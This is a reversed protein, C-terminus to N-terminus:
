EFHRPSNYFLHRKKAPTIPISRDRGFKSGALSIFVAGCFIIASLLISQSFAPPNFVFRVVHTGPPVFVGKFCYNVRYVPIEDGDLYAKWGPFYTDIMELLAGKETEVLVRVLNPSYWLIELKGAAGEGGSGSVGFWEPVPVQENLYATETVGRSMRNLTTPLPTFEVRNHLRFLRSIHDGYKAPNQRLPRSTTPFTHLEFVGSTFQFRHVWNADFRNEVRHRYNPQFSFDKKFEGLSRRYDIIKTKMRLKHSSHAISLGDFIVLVSLGIIVATRYRAFRRNIIFILTGGIFLLAYLTDHFLLSYLTLDEEFLPLISAQLYVCYGLLLLLVGGLIRPLTRDLFRDRLNRFTVRLGIAALLLLYFIFFLRSMAAHRSHSYVPLLYYYWEYLFSFGGLSSFMYFLAVGGLLLPLARYRRWNSLAILAFILCPLTIYVSRRALDQGNFNAMDLAKENGGGAAMEAENQLLATRPFWLTIYSRPTLAGQGVAYIYSIGSRGRSTYPLYSKATILYPAAFLAGLILIVALKGAIPGPSCRRRRLLAIIVALLCLHLGIAFWLVPYVTVITLAYALAAAVCYRLSNKRIIFAKVGFLVVYPLCGLAAIISPETNHVAFGSFAYGVATIFAIWRRRILWKVLVFFGIAGAGLPIVYTLIIFHYLGYSGSFIATLLYLPFFYLGTPNAYSPVGLAHYPNWLPFIGQTISRGLFLNISYGIHHVDGELFYVEGRLFKFYSIFVLLVLLLSCGIDMFIGHQRRIKEPSRWILPIGVLNLFLYGVLCSLTVGRSFVGLLNMILLPVFVSQSIINFRRCRPLSLTSLSEMWRSLGYHALGALPFIYFFASFFTLAPHFVQSWYLLYTWAIIVSVAGVVAWGVLGSGRNDSKVRYLSLNNENM